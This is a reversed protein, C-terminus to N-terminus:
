VPVGALLPQLTTRGWVFAVPCGGHNQDINGKNSSGHGGCPGDKNWILQTECGTEFTNNHAQIRSSEGTARRVGSHKNRNSTSSTSSTAPCSTSACSTKSTSCLLTFTIHRGCPGKQPVLSQQFLAFYVLNACFLVFYFLIVCFLSIACYYSLINSMYIIIHSRMHPKGVPRFSM